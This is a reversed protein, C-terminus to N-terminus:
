TNNLYTKTVIRKNMPSLVVRKNNFDKKQNSKRGTASAPRTAKLLSFIVRVSSLLM